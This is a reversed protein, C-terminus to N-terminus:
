YQSNGIFSKQLLEKALFTGILYSGEHNWHGSKNTAKWYNPNIGDAKIKNIYNDIEIMPINNTKILTEYVKPLSTRKVFVINEGNKNLEAIKKILASNVNLNKDEKKHMTDIITSTLNKSSFYVNFKDLLIHWSDGSEILQAVKKFLNFSPVIRLFAYKQKQKYSKSEVFQDNIILSDNLLELTPGLNNDKRNFSNDGIFFLTIDPNFSRAFRAHYVFSSHFDSGERAFNLVTIPEKCKDNLENELISRVSWKDFLQLSAVFSDGLLSIRFEEDEKQPSYSPGLYGYENIKGLHFGENLLMLDSNPKFKRGLRNDITVYSPTSIKTFYFFIEYSSLCLIVTFIFLLSSKIINM